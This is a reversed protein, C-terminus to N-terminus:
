DGGDGAATRGRSGAQEASRAPKAGLLSKEMVIADAHDQYYEPRVGTLRYGRSAYLSMAAANDRRLELRITRRGRARAEDEIAELLAQGVGRGRDAPDVAISYVRAHRRRDHFLALAYGRVRGSQDDVLLVARPNVIMRRLSRRSLRDGPFARRELGDLQDLDDITAARLM